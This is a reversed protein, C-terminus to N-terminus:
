DLAVLFEEFSPRVAAPFTGVHRQLHKSLPTFDAACVRRVHRLRGLLTLTQDEWRTPDVSTQTAHALHGSIKPPCKNSM